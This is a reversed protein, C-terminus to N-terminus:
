VQQLVQLVAASDFGRRTLPPTIGASHERRALLGLAIDRIDHTLAVSDEDAAIPFLQRRNPWYARIQAELESALEPNEQLYNRVNEKAKDLGTAATTTGPM